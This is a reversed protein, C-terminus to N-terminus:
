PVSQTWSYAHSCHLSARGSGPDLGAQLAGALAQDVLEVLGAMSPPEALDFSEVVDEGGDVVLEVLDLPGLATDVGDPEDRWWPPAM